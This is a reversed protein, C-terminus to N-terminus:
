VSRRAKTVQQRELVTACLNGKYTLHRYGILVNESTSAQRELVTACLNSKYIMHLRGTLVNESASCFVTFSFLSVLLTVHDTLILQEQEFCVLHPLSLNGFQTSAHAMTHGAVTGSLTM